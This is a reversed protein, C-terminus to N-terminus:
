FLFNEKGEEKQDDGSSMNNLKANKKETKKKSKEANDEEESSLDEDNYDNIDSSKLIEIKQEAETLKKECLRSLTIGEEFLKLSEDLSLEGSELSRAIEELRSLSKEFNIKQM